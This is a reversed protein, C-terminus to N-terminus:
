ASRLAPYESRAVGLVDGAPVEDAPLEAGAVPEAASFKEAILALMARAIEAERPRVTDTPGGVTMVMQRQGEIQPLCAAIMAGGSIIADYVAAYGQGRVRELADHLERVSVLRSGEGAEANYRLALRTVEESSMAAMMAQGGACTAVPSAYGIPMYYRDSPPPQLIHIYQVSLGNRMGLAVTEGFENFLAKMISIVKGEAFFPENVWNGLLAVRSSTLYTRKRPEYVLYGMTVMSSLLASTSSQPYSLAEAIEMVTTPRRVDDLYELIEFVRSASKVLKNEATVLTKPRQWMRPKVRRAM